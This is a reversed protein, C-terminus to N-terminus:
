VKGARKSFYSLLQYLARTEFCDEIVDVRGGSRNLGTSDTIRQVEVAKVRQDFAGALSVEIVLETQPGESSNTANRWIVSHTGDDNTQASVRWGEIPLSVALQVIENDLSSTPTLGLCRNIVPAFKAVDKPAFYGGDDWGGKDRVAGRYFIDNSVGTSNLQRRQTKASSQLDSFLDAVQHAAKVMERYRCVNNVGEIMQDLPMNTLYSPVHALRLTDIIARDEACKKAESMVAEDHSSICEFRQCIDMYLPIWGVNGLGNDLVIELEDFSADENEPDFQFPSEGEYESEHQIDDARAVSLQVCAQEIHEKLKRCVAVVLAANTAHTLAPRRLVEDYSWEDWGNRADSFWDTHFDSDPIYDFATIGKPDAQLLPVIVHKAFGELCSNLSSIEDALAKSDQSRSEFRFSALEALLTRAAEPTFNQSVEAAIPGGQPNNDKHINM